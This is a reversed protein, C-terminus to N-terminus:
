KKLEADGTLRLSTMAEDPKFDGQIADVRHTLVQNGVVLEITGGNRLLDEFFMKIDHGEFMTSTFLCKNKAGHESPMKGCNACVALINHGFRYDLTASLPYAKKKGTM